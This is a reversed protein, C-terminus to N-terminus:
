VSLIGREFYKRVELFLLKQREKGSTNVLHESPTSWYGTGLIALADEAELKLIFLYPSSCHSMETNNIASSSFSLSTELFIVNNEGPLFPTQVKWM